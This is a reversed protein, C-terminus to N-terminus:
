SVRSNTHFKISYKSPILQAFTTDFSSIMRYRRDLHYLPMYREHSETSFPIYSVYRCNSISKCNPVAPYQILSRTLQIQGLLVYWVVELKM